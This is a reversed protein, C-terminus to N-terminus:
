SFRKQNKEGRRTKMKAAVQEKKVGANARWQRVGNIRDIRDIRATQLCQGASRERPRFGGEAEADITMDRQNWAHLILGNAKPRRTGSPPRLPLRPGCWSGVCM